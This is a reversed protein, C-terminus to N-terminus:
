TLTWISFDTMAGLNYQDEIVKEVADNIEEEESEKIIPRIKVYGPTGKGYIGESKNPTEFLLHDRLAWV